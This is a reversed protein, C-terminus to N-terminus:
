PCHEFSNLNRTNRITCVFMCVIPFPLNILLIYICCLIYLLPFLPKFLLRHFGFCPKKRTVPSHKATHVCSAETPARAGVAEFTPEAPPFFSVPAQQEVDNRIGRGIGTKWIKRKTTGFCVELTSNPALASDDANVLLCFCFIRLAYLALQHVIKCLDRYM